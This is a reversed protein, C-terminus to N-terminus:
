CFFFFIRPAVLFYIAASKCGLFATSHQVSTFYLQLWFASTYTFTLFFILWRYNTLSFGFCINISTSLVTVFARMVYVCGSFLRYLWIFVIYSLSQFVKYKYFQFSSNEKWWISVIVSLWFHIGSSWHVTPLWAGVSIDKVCSRCRLEPFLTSLNYSGSSWSAEKSTKNRSISAQVVVIDTPVDVSM